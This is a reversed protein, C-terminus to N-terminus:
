GRLRASGQRIVEHAFAMACRAIAFGSLAVHVGDPISSVAEALTSLKSM